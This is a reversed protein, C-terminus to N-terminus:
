RGFVISCESIGKKSYKYERMGVFLSEIEKRQNDTLDTPYSKRKLYEKEMVKNYCKKHIRRRIDAYNRGLRDVSKVVFTDNPLLLNMLKQYAPRNFNKGSCCDVFINKASVGFSELASIQRDTNQDKSSVRVYGYIKSM